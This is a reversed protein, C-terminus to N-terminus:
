ARAPRLGGGDSPRGDDSEGDDDPMGIPMVWRGAEPRFGVATLYGRYRDSGVLAPSAVVRRAGMQAFLGDGRYVFEGPTFDRYPPLVYDLVVQQEDPTDGERSLVVGVLDDGSTVVFAHQAEALVTPAAVAHAALDDAHRILVRALFPEGVGIRVVDYARPDHRRRLLGIVVWLNVGVLVLNLAVMPWVGLVANYGTLVASAAANLARFRMVRTQLLSVVLMASGFWGVIELLPV